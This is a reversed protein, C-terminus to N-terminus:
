IFCQQDFLPCIPIFLSWPSIQMNNFRWASWHVSDCKLKEDVCIWWGNRQSKSSKSSGFIPLFNFCDRSIGIKCTFKINKCPFIHTEARTVLRKCFIKQRFEAYRWNYKVCIMWEFPLISKEQCFIQKDFNEHHAM